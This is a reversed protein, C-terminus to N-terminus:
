GRETIICARADESNKIVRVPTVGLDDHLDIIDRLAQAVKDETFNEMVYSFARQAYESLLGTDQYAALLKEAFPTAENEIFLCNEIGALGEAGISTTFVPLGHYMAEVVKGKVGAGFRLPVISIRCTRYLDELEVDSINSKVIIDSCALRLIKESPNSGVIYLKMPIKKSRLISFVENVFWVIGDSNPPHGFCGVFLLDKKDQPFGHYNKKQFISIPLLKCNINSDIKNVEILEVDSPYLVINSKRMIKYELEKYEESKHLLSVDGTLEYERKLRMYHLDHGYYIIKASTLERVADIYPASTDPRNLFVSDIANGNERLWEKWYKQYKKGYLVEIGMQQLIGTYPQPALFDDGWFTIRFDLQVFLSLYQFVQRSGADRDYRPVSQDIMLMSKKGSSRDRARFVNEDAKYQERELVDSWKKFFKKQNIVQWAKQGANTDTGHSAGEFHVVRSVPQYVVRLGAARLAFALDTDEYYAPAFREDFGGLMDWASRRVLIAAGSVYDVEKVYNFEPRSPHMGRGYQAASGDCRVMGGAEQLTGDACLLKPGTLGITEDREMLRVLPSLWESQVQTDNNLFCLYKGTASKAANNCNYLFRMNEVNRVVNVNKVAKEIERTMDTSNDDAVIVEYPIGNTHQLIADLCTYTYSFQNFVPIIISVLPDDRIPFNLLPYAEINERLYHEPNVISPVDPLEDFDVLKEGDLVNNLRRAAELVGEAFLVRFLAMIRKPSVEDAVRL